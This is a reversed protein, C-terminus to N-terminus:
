FCTYQEALESEYSKSAVLQTHSSSVLIHSMGVRILRFMMGRVSPCGLSAGSFWLLLVDGVPLSTYELITALVDLSEFAEDAVIVVLAIFSGLFEPLSM